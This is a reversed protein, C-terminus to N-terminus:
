MQFSAVQERASEREYLKVARLLDAMSDCSDFRVGRSCPKWDFPADEPRRWWSALRVIPWGKFMKVSLVLKNLQGGPGESPYLAKEFLVEGDRQEPNPPGRGAAIDDRRRKAVSHAVPLHNALNVLAQKGVFLHPDKAGENVFVYSMRGIKPQCAAVPPKRYYKLQGYCLYYCGLKGESEAREMERMWEPATKKAPPEEDGDTDGDREELERRKEAEELASEWESEDLMRQTYIADPGLLEQLYADPAPESTSVHQGPDQEGGALEM